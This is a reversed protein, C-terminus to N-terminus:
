PRAVGGGREGGADEPSFEKFLELPQHCKPCAKMEVYAELYELVATVLTAHSWTLPSVSLAENSYPHVQEALVGTSLARDAVWELLRKARALFGQAEETSGAKRARASYYESAWLTCIFWPNGPVRDVDDSVQHYYDNEYRAVGGVDTKVWLKDWVQEMTSVVVPDDPELTGFEFISYLSADVVADKEIAGDRSFNVTRLFRGLEPDYMHRIMAEKVEKAAAEYARGREIRGFLKALNSAALLGAHVAAVTFAHVGRREEWLDYSPRPLGNDLRFDVMFDAAPEVFSHYIEKVFDLDRFKEFHKWLAFVVLATEDEQIAIVLGEDQSYWPHWTSGPTGDPHYKHLLFGRPTALGACFRFFRRTLTAYGAKDLAFAVLAGDRPWVYSYTDRNFQLIDSDNAAIIAGGVDIQTKVVLLSRKYLRVVREPLDHFNVPNSNVWAREYTDVESTLSDVGRQLVFENLKVVDQYSTGCCLWYDVASEGMAPVAVDLQLVSDVSGQEIPNGSLAGDEADKFTGEKGFHVKGTAFGDLKGSDGRGRFLFYRDKLFHVISDSDPDYYATIGVDSELVHVDQTFFFKVRREAPKSNRVVIKRLFVNKEAHVCDRISLDVGIAGNKAVVRGVLSDVEYDLTKEWSGDHLWSFAGDVWVGVRWEHGNLHNEMGVHPFYFDRIRYKADLCVLMRQNGFVISRPM